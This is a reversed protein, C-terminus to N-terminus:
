RLAALLAELMAQGMLKSGQRNMHCCTDMYIPQQLEGFLTTLDHFLVGEQALQAGAAQLLPYALPVRQAYKSEMDLAVGREKPGMPKSGLLYQNPQLFHLFLTDSAQCMHFLARSSRTWIGVLDEFQEDLSEYSRLPGTREVSLEGSTALQEALMQVRKDLTRNSWYWALQRIWSLQLPSELIAEAADAQRAKQIDFRALLSGETLGMGLRSVWQRPYAPLMKSRAAAGVHLAIENFGDLLMVADFRVGLSDLFLYSILAQPQKHGSNALGVLVVDRGALLPSARLARLLQKGYVHVLNAAVSGGAIGVVFTEKQFCASSPDGLDPSMLFTIGAALKDSDKSVFGLYPHRYELSRDARTHKHAAPGKNRALLEQDALSLQRSHLVARSVPQGELIRVSAWAGIECLIWIWTGLLLVRRRLSRAAM